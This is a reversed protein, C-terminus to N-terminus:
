VQEQTSLCVVLAFSLLHEASLPIFPRPFLLSLGGLEGAESPASTGWQTSRMLHSSAVCGMFVTEMDSRATPNHAGAPGAQLMPLQEGLM